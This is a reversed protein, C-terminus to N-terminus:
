TKGPLDGLQKDFKDKWDYQAAWKVANGAIERHRVTDAFLGAISEELGALTTVIGIGNRMIEGTAVPGSVDLAIAPLGCAAYAFVKGPLQYWSPMSPNMEYLCLGVGLRVMIEEFDDAKEIRGHWKVRDAVACEAAIRSLRDM